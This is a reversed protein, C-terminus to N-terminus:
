CRRPPSSPEPHIRWMLRLQEETIATGPPAVAAEFGAEVLAIVDM